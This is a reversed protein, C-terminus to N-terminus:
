TRAALIELDRNAYHDHEWEETFLVHLCRQVTHPQNPHGPTAPPTCVRGLEAETLGEVTARVSRLREGRVELIEDLSPDAGPDLGWSRPDSLWSGALGWPHYGATEGLVMRGHWLDTALVLHRLTEVYSWEGEVREHAAEPPLAQARAVTAAARGELMNWARRLGVPDTARLLAREPERRELEALVLPAVEVGNLLLGELDGSFDAGVFRGDTVRAGEFNPAHLHVGGFDVDDRRQRDMKEELLM